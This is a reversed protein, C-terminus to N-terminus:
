GEEVEEADPISTAPPQVEIGFYRKLVWRASSAIRENPFTARERLIPLARADGIRALAEMALNVVRPHRLRQITDNWWKSQYYIVACIDDRSYYEILEGKTPWRGMTRLKM